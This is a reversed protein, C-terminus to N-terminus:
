GLIEKFFSFGLSFYGRVLFLFVIKVKGGCGRRIRKVAEGSGVLFITYFRSCVLRYEAMSKMSKGM